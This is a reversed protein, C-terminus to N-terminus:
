GFCYPFANKIITVEDGLISIVDFRVSVDDSFHHSMLYYAATSSIKKQKKFNVAEQPMGTKANKRYKVEAFVLYEKDKAIIDVEGVKCHYNMELITYGEKEMEEAALKEYCSGKKRNDM